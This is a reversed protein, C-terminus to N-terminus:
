RVISFMISKFRTILINGQQDHDISTIALEIVRQPNRPLTWSIIILENDHKAIRHAHVHSYNTM